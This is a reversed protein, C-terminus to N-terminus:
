ICANCKTGAFNGPKPSSDSVCLSGDFYEEGCYDCRLCPVEEVILLADSQQHIYRTTTPTLHAHGCFQCNSSM